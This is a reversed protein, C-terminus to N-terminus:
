QQTKNKAALEEQRKKAAEAIKMINAPDGLLQKMLDAAQKQVSPEKAKRPKPESTSKGSGTGSSTSTSPVITTPRTYTFHESCLEILKEESFQAIEEASYGLIQEIKMKVYERRYVFYDVVVFYRNGKLRNLIAPYNVLSVEEFLGNYSIYTWLELETLEIM